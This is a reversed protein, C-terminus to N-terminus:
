KQGHQTKRATHLSDRTTTPPSRSAMPLSRAARADRITPLTPEEEIGHAPKKSRQRRQHHLAPELDDTVINAAGPETTTTCLNLQETVHPINGSRSQVPAGANAPLNGDM